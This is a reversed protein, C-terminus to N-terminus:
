AEGLPSYPHEKNPIWELMKPEEKSTSRLLAKYAEKKILIYKLRSQASLRDIESSSERKGPQALLGYWVRYLVDCFKRFIGEM